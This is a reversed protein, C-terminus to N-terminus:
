KILIKETKCFSSSNAITLYYFGSSLNNLMLSHNGSLNNKTIEIQGLQNYVKLSYNELLTEINLIDKAPNPFVIVSADSSNHNSNDEFAM